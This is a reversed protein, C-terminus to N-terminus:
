LWIKQQVQKLYDQKAERIQELIFQKTLIRQPSDSSKIQLTKELDAIKTRINDSEKRRALKVWWRKIAQRVWFIKFWNTVTMAYILVNKPYKARDKKLKDFQKRLSTLRMRERSFVEKLTPEESLVWKLQDELKKIQKEKSIDIKDNNEKYDKVDTELFTKLKVAFDKAEQETMKNTDASLLQKKIEEFDNGFKENKTPAKNKKSLEETIREVEERKWNAEAENLEKMMKEEEDLDAKSTNKMEKLKKAIDKAKERNGFQKALTLEEILKEETTPNNNVSNRNNVM